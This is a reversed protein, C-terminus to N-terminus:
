LLANEKAISSGWYLWFDALIKVCHIKKKNVAVAHGFGGCRLAGGMNYFEVGFSWCCIELDAVGNGASLSVDM